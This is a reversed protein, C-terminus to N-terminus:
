KFQLLRGAALPSYGVCSIDEECPKEPISLKPRMPPDKKTHDQVRHQAQNQIQVCSKKMETIKEWLMSNESVLVATEEAHIARLYRNEEEMHKLEDDLSAQKSALEAQVSSILSKYRQVDSQSDLLESKLRTVEEELALCHQCVAAKGFGDPEYRQDEKPGLCPVPGVSDAEKTNDTALSMRRTGVSNGERVNSDDDKEVHHEEVQVQEPEVLPEEEVKCGITCDVDAVQLVQFKERLGGNLSKAEVVSKCPSGHDEKKVVGGVDPQECSKSVDDMLGLVDGSGALLSNREGDVCSSSRSGFGRASFYMSSAETDQCTTYFDDTAGQDSVESDSVESGSHITNDMYKNNNLYM